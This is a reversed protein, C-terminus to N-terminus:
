RNREMIDFPIKMDAYVQWLAMRQDTVMAQWAVRIHWHNQIDTSDKGRYTASAMGFV